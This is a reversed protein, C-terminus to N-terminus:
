YKKHQADVEEYVARSIDAIADDLYEFSSGETMVCLLYPHKPYYIIGCDHLQKIRNGEGYSREGFKHAVAVGPPVGKVLGDKFDSKALFELAKESMEKGLYTANFLVRFFSAYREASLSYEANDAYPSKMGLDNYVRKLVSPNVVDELLSSANNDSYVIMRYLLEDITYYDGKKMTVAPKINQAPYYDPEGRYQIREMLLGPTTEAEKLIAIMMPVKLLSAPFFNEVPGISFWMESNLERFYVSSDDMWEKKMEAAIFHEIEKKFPSLERNDSSDRASECDLLPNTYRFGGQRIAFYQFQTREKGRLAYGVFIGALLTLAFATFGIFGAKSRM